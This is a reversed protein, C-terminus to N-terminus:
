YKSKRPHHHINTKLITPPAQQYYSDCLEDFGISATVAISKTTPGMSGAVFRPKEKTSFEDAVRRAIKAAAVNIEYTQDQLDYEALVVSTGGFTNTEIIDAGVELYSRHIKEIASPKSFNLHEPCGEYKSGGYDEATLKMAFLSTGMAGDLVL